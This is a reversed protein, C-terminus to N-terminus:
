IGRGAAEAASRIRAHKKLACIMIARCERRSYGSRLMKETFRNMEADRIEQDLRETTNVKRRIIEKTLTARRMEENVASRKMLWYVSNMPKFFFQHLVLGEPSLWVKFDLTSLKLDEFDEATEMTFTLMSFQASMLKALETKTREVQRERTYDTELWEQRYELLSGNWRVGNGLLQILLRVDDVYFRHLYVRCGSRALTDETKNTWRAMNVRACAMTLRSGIPGGKGQRRM